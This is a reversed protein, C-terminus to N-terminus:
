HPWFPVYPDEEGKRKSPEPTTSCREPTRARDFVGGNPYVNHYLEDTQSFIEMKRQLKERREQREKKFRERLERGASRHRSRPQQDHIIMSEVEDEDDSESESEVFANRGNATRPPPMLRSPSPSRSPLQRKGVVKPSPPRPQSVNRITTVQPLERVLCEYLPDLKYIDWQDQTM